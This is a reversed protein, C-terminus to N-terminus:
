GCGIREWGGSVTCRPPISSRSMARPYFAEVHEQRLYRFQRGLARVLTKDIAGYPSHLLRDSERARLEATLPLREGARRTIDKHSDPSGTFLPVDRKTTM